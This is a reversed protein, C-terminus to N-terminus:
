PFVAKYSRVNPISAVICGGDNLFGSLIDITKWPDRLHELIDLCLIIQFPGSNKFISNLFLESDLDGKYIFDLRQHQSRDTFLDAVGACEVYKNEKLWSATAGIGGGFDLLVGGERRIIPIIDNRINDYYKQKIIEKM